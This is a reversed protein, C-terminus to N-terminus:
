GALALWGGSPSPDSSDSPEIQKALLSLCRWRNPRHHVVWGDLCITSCRSLVPNCNGRIIALWRYRDYSSSCAKKLSGTAARLTPLALPLRQQVLQSRSAPQYAIVSVRHDCSIDSALAREGDVLRCSSSCCCWLGSVLVLAAWCWLLGVGSCLLVLASCCWLLARRSFGVGAPLCFV